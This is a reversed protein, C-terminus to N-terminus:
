LSFYFQSWAGIKYSNLLYSPVKELAIWTEDQLPKPLKRINKKAFLDISPYEQFPATKTDITIINTEM